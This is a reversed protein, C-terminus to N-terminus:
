LPPCLGQLATYIGGTPCVQPGAPPPQPNTSKIGAWLGIILLVLVLWAIGIWRNVPKRPPPEPSRKPLRKALLYVLGGAVLLVGLFIAILLVSAVLGEV